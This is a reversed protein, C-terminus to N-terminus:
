LLGYFLSFQSGRESLFCFTGKVWVWLDYWWVLQLDLLGCIYVL